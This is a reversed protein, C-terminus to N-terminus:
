SLINTYKYELHDAMKISAINMRALFVSPVLCLGLDNRCSIHKMQFVTKGRNVLKRILFM